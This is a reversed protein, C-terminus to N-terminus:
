DGNYILIKKDQRQILLDIIDGASGSDNEIPLIKQPIPDGGIGLTLINTGSSFTGDNNNIYGKVHYATTTLVLLDLSGNSLDNEFDGIAFDSPEHGTLDIEQTSNSDFNFTANNNYIIHIKEDYLSVIDARGDPATPNNSANESGMDKLKFQKFLSLGTLMISQSMQFDGQHDQTFVEMIGPNGAGAVVFDTRGNNDLDAVEIEYPFNSTINVELDILDFNVLGPASTVNKLGMMQKTSSQLGVLDMKRNSNFLIGTQIKELMETSTGLLKFYPLSTTSLYPSLPQGLFVIIYASNSVVVPSTSVALDLRDDGDFDAVVADMPMQAGITGFISGSSMNITSLLAYTGASNQYLYIRRNIFDLSILDDDGDQDIDSALIKFSDSVITFNAPAGPTFTGINLSHGVSSFDALNQIQDAYGDNFFLYLSGIMQGHKVILPSVKFDIQCNAGGAITDGSNLPCTSSDIYYGDPVSYQAITAASDGTNEILISQIAVPASNILNTGFYGPNSGTTSLVAPGLDTDIYIDQDASHNNGDGSTDIVQVVMAPINGQIGTAPTWEVVKSSTIITEGAGCPTYALGDVLVNGSAHSTICYTLGSISEDADAAEAMVSSFSVPYANKSLAGTLDVQSITPQRNTDTVNVTYDREFYNSGITCRLTITEAAWDANSTRYSPTCTLNNSAVACGLDSAGTISYVKAGASGDSCTVALVPSSTANEAVNITYSSTELVFVNINLNTPIASVDGQSDEAVFAGVLTNGAPTLALPEWTWTQGQCLKSSGSVVETATHDKLTGNGSNYSNLKFCLATNADEHDDINSKALVDAFSLNFIEGRLVGPNYTSITTLTPAQNVDTVILSFSKTISVGALTCSVQVTSSWGANTTKYAPTCTVNSGAISCNSDADSASVLTYVPANATGDNCALPTTGVSGEATSINTIASFDMISNMVDVAPTTYAHIGDSLSVRMMVLGSPQTVPPTWLVSEGAAITTVGEIVPVGNKTVTGNGSPVNEIKFTMPDGDADVVSGRTILDGWTITVTDGLEVNYASISTLSPPQNANTVNLTFNQTFTQAGISCEVSVISTWNASGAYHGPACYVQGPITTTDCNSTANTQGLISFAAVDGPGNECALAATFTSSGETASINAISNFGAVGITLTPSTTANLAGDNAGIELAAIAGLNNTPPTWQFTEGPGILTGLTKNITGALVNTLKFKISDNDPDSLNVGISTLLDAYSITFASNRSAGNIQSFGGAFVPPRNSSDVMVKLIRSYTGGAGALDCEVTVDESWATQGPRYVPTCAIANGGSIICGVDAPNITLTYSSVTTSNLDGCLLTGTTETEGEGVYLDAIPAIGELVTKVAISSTSNTVGDYARMTFMTSEGVSIGSPTWIFEEGVSLRTGPTVPSGSKTMTGNLVSDVEFSIPDSDLDAENSNAILSAYTITFPSGFAAGTLTSTSTLTPARNINSVSVAVSKSYKEVANVYCKVIVNSNYNAQGAKYNPSCSFEAVPHLGNISCNSDADSQTTIAYTITGATGDYCNLLVPTTTEGENLSMSALQTMGNFIISVDQAVDSNDIGDYAYVSFAVIEGVSTSAPTYVWTELPSLVDGLNVIVGGKRLTGGVVATALRFRITQGDADSVGTAKTMLNSHTISYNSGAAGGTFDNIPNPLQPKQNTNTVNLTISKTSTVAGITCSVSLTQTWNGTSTPHYDVTSCLITDGSMSCNSYQTPAGTLTYTPTVGSNDDCNLPASTVSAQEAVSLTSPPTFNMVNAIVVQVASSASTGDFAAIKFANTNGIATSSPTWTFSQGSSIYTTGTSVGLGSKLVTGNDISQIRFHITDSDADALGNANALLDAYSITVPSGTKAGSALTVPSISTLTPVQNTDSVNVTFSIPNIDGNITCTANVTASWSAHGSKYNPTCRIKVPAATLSCNADSDSVSTIAYTQAAGSGDDCDIAATDATAAEALTLDAIDNDIIHISIKDQSGIIAGSPNSLAIVVSESGENGEIDNVVSLSITKSSEGPAFTVSGDAFTYDDQDTATTLGSVIAYDLSVNTLPTPSVKITIEQTGISEYVSISSTSFEVKTEGACFLICETEKPFCSQLFLPLLLWFIKLIAKANILM